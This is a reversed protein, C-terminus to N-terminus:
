LTDWQPDRQTKEIPTQKDQIQLNMIEVFKSVDAMIEEFLKESERKEKQSKQLAHIPGNVGRPIEKKKKKELEMTNKLKLSEVQNWKVIKGRQQYKWKTWINTEQNGELEKSTNDRLEKLMNLVATKFDKDIM